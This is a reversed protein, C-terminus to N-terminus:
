SGEERAERRSRILVLVVGFLVLHVLGVFIKLWPIPEYDASVTKMSLINPFASLIRVRFGYYKVLVIADRDNTSYNNAEAALDGSNFKFYPPWGWGTDENRFMRAEGDLGEVMVYRVDSTRIRGDPNQVDKRTVETGTVHVKTFRPLSYACFLAYALLLIIGGGIGIRKLWRVITDLM